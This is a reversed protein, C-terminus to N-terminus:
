DVVIICALIDSSTLVGVSNSLLYHYTQIGVTFVSFIEELSWVRNALNICIAGYLESLGGCM